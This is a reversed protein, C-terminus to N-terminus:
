SRRSPEASDVEVLLDGALLVEGRPVAEEAEEGARAHHQRRRAAEDGFIILKDLVVDPWDIHLEVVGSAGHYTLTLALAEFSGERLNFNVIVSFAGVLAKDQKSASVLM